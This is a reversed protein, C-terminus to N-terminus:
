RRVRRVTVDTITESFVVWEGKWVNKNKRREYQEQTLTEYEYVDAYPYLNLKSRM